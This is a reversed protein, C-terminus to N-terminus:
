VVTLLMYTSSFRASEPVMVLIKGGKTLKNSNFLAEIMLFASAAGVNGVEPLNIFWKERPIHFGGGALKYYAENEFFMSSLHPLFWNIDDIDFHRKDCVKGLHDVGCDIIHKQLLRADQKLSFVSQLNQEESSLERWGKVSGDKNKVCGAFMCTELQNAYSKIDIWEIRLSPNSTNPKTQLLAACAGDSLMWRLFDKEFAIYPNDEIEKRKDIENDYNKAQMWSSFIESAASVATKYEGSALALYAYKLSLMGANCTGHASMVEMQHPTGLEGHVMLAHSPQIADPSSTGATLLEIDSIDINNELVKRIAAATLGANSHTPKGHKDLAYYRSKIKNNRLILGRSKSENGNILGLYDEMEDNSVARNPMYKEIATIYVENM